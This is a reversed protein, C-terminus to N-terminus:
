GHAGQLELECPPTPALWAVSIKFFNLVLARLAIFPPFKIIDVFPTLVSLVPSFCFRQFGPWLPLGAPLGFPARLLSLSDKRVAKDSSKEDLPISTISFTLFSRGCSYKFITAATSGLCICSSSRVGLRFASSRVSSSSAQMAVPRAQHFQCRLRRRVFQ